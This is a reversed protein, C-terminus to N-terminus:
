WPEEESSQQSNQQSNQSNLQSQYRFKRRLLGGPDDPIRRLWQENAQMTELEAQDVDDLPMQANQQDTADQNDQQQQEQEQQAQKQQQQHQQWAQEAEQQDGSDNAQASQEDSMPEDSSSNQATSQADKQQNDQQNDQQDQGSQSQQSQESNQEGSQDQSQGNDSQQNQSDKQNQQDSQQDNQQNSQQQQDSQGDQNQQQKLYKELLEKNYLADEHGPSSELVANYADIAEQIRGLRALANGKNYLDDPTNSNDLLELAKDYNKAKYYAAAQWHKDRFQEAAQQAQGHELAVQARQNQNQWLEDWSFAQSTQPIPLVVCILVAGLWGKRFALAAFPAILLLLWPGEERWTDAKLKAQDTTMEASDKVPSFEFGRILYNIDKDTATLRAYRGGNYNALERLPKEQLKPVVIDGFRDKLLSGNGLQIPAGGATGVALVSLRYGNGAMLDAIASESIDGLGDTILLINGNRMGGQQLLEVAKSIAVEPNSGQHPMLETGLSTVMSEITKVDDSLPSVVFAEAAYVVLATQGETRKALIDLIKHKARTVRSPKIDTADMSQSMDLVIVLGSQSRYVPQPLKKWVPGALATIILVGALALVYVPWKTKHHEEGVLIFPLLRADVVSQWSRSVLKRKLLLVVLIFLPIIALLWYPRLFHFYHLDSFTM